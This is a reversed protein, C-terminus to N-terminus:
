FLGKKVFQEQTVTKVKVSISKGQCSNVIDQNGQEHYNYSEQMGDLLIEPGNGVAVVSDYDQTNQVEPEKPLAHNVQGPDQDQYVQGEQNQNEWGKSTHERILKIKPEWIDGYAKRDDRM